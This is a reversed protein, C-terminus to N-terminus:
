KRWHNKKDTIIATRNLINYYVIDDDIKATIVDYGMAAATNGMRDDMTDWATRFSYKKEFLKGEPSNLDLIRAGSRLTARHIQADPKPRAYENRAEDFNNTFYIGRGYMSQQDSSWHPPIKNHFQEKFSNLKDQTNGEGRFLEVTGNEKIYKDLEEPPVVTPLGEFGQKKAIEPFLDFNESLEKESYDKLIDNGSVYGRDTIKSDNNGDKLGEAAWAGGERLDNGLAWEEIEHAGPTDEGNVYDRLQQIFEDQGKLRPEVMCFCNPHPYAPVTDATYPGGAGLEGCIGCKGDLTVWDYEGTCAPDNEANEVASEQLQRYKESRYLRMARYDVGTKGLRKAYEKTGPELKGWRGPLAQPGGQIYEMLDAAVDRVDRGQSIGGRVVDLIQEETHNVTDWVSKSLSHSKHFTYDRRIEEGEFPHKPDGTPKFGWGTGTYSKGPANKIVECYPKSNATKTRETKREFMATIKEKSLGHGSVKDLAEFIYRKEIDAILHATNTRGNLILKMLWDYLEKRPFASKIQEELFLKSKGGRIVKAIRTIIYIYEQHIKKKGEIVQRAAESRAARYAKRYGAKTV